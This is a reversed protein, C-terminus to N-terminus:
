FLAWDDLSFNSFKKVVPEFIPKEIVENNIPCTEFEGGNNLFNEYETMITLKASNESCANHHSVFKVANGGEGQSFDRWNYHGNKYFFFLSPNSDRNSLSKVRISRGDFPQYIQKKLPDEETSLQYYYHKYIWSEPVEDIDVIINKLVYSM